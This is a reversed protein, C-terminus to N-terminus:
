REDLFPDPPMEDDPRSLDDPALLDDLPGPPAAPRNSRSDTPSGIPEGYFVRSTFDPGLPAPSANWFDDDADLPLPEDAADRSDVRMPGRRRLLVLGVLGLVSLGIGALDLTTYGYSLRVESEEPIVVMLNPAVRWPGAAGSVEWNPFYSAKVLVPVGIQDVTFSIWDEGSEIDDVTVEPLEATPLEPLEGDVLEVREWHDPGDAAFTTDDYDELFWEEAPPLWEGQDQGLGEVVVPETALPEVLPSDAVEFVVWSGSNAIPTLDPHELAASVATDSFAMYYNVGFQQMHAVGRDIDLDSYALDRMPRSPEASLESQMHFHWPVTTSSEFYLGEMSDICGDTWFPLLMLAMPTGYGDLRDKGYEWLARGCGNVEGVERMTDVIGHYEGYQSKGEYGKFNWDVWSGALSAESAALHFPGWQYNGSADRDGGPLVRARFGTFLVGALLALLAVGIAVPRTWSPDTLRLRPVPRSVLRFLPPVDSEPDPDPWELVTEHLRRNAPSAARVSASVTSALHALGYAALLYLSLYWFPLLRANWLRDIPWAAVMAWFIMAIVTLSVGLWEWRVLAVIGGVAALLLLWAISSVDPFFLVEAVRNLREWGMDNLYDRRGLFPLVWFASLLFGLGGASVVWWTRRWEWRAVTAVGLLLVSIAIAVGVKGLWGPQDAGVAAVAVAAAAVGVAGVLGVWSPLRLIGKALLVAVIAIAVFLAPILHCTACVALLVAVSARHTGDQLGRFALGITVLAVALSITFAFEGAMTSYVNGGYISWNTDFVFVTAGVAFLAPVPFPARALHGMAWAAVPMAVLGSIAIIKFAIGYPLLVDLLVIALYPLPMYFHLAPFGAYWDMTWGTLRFSSLLHDRLYAPGWVHAGMDGGTPTTDLFVKSPNVQALVWIVALGVVAATVVRPIWSAEYWPQTRRPEPPPPPAAIEDVMVARDPDDPDRGPDATGHGLLPDM